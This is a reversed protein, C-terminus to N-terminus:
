FSNVFPICHVEENETLAIFHCLLVRSIRPMVILDVMEICAKHAMKQPLKPVFCYKINISDRRYVNDDRRTVTVDASYTIDVQPPYYFLSLKTHPSVTLLFNRVIGYM